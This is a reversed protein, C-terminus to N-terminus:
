GEVVLNGRIVDKSEVLAASDRDFTAFHATRCHADFAAEDDYIEYLLVRGAEGQPVVVDFRRCGPEDRVSVRANEEILPHFAADAGPKLRFDVMIIFGASV